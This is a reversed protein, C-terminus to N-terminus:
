GCTTAPTTRAFSKRYRVWSASTPTPSSAPSASRGCGSRTSSACTRRACSADQTPSSSRSSRSTRRSPTAASTPVRSSRPSRPRSPASRPWSAAQADTIGHVAGSGPDIPTEPNVFWERQEVAGGPLLKHVALSILRADAPSPGTWESDIVCLPRTLNALAHRPPSPSDDPM